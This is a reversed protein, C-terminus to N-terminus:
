LELNHPEELNDAEFSRSIKICIKHKNKDFEIENNKERNNKSEDKDLTRQEEEEVIEDGAYNLETLKLHTLLLEIKFEVEEDKNKKVDIKSRFEQIPEQKKPALKQVLADCKASIEELLVEEITKKPEMLITNKEKEQKFKYTINNVEAIMKGKNNVMDNPENEELELIIESSDKITNAVLDEQELATNVGINERKRQDMEITLSNCISLVEQLLREYNNEKNKIGEKKKRRNLDEKIREQYSRTKPRFSQIRRKKIIEFKNNSKGYWSASYPNDM